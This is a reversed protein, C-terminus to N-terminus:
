RPTRRYCVARMKRSHSARPGRKFTAIGVGLALKQRSHSARPGCKFTAIGVGLALLKWLVAPALFATFPVKTDGGDGSKSSTTSGAALQLRGENARVASSVQFLGTTVLFLLGVTRSEFLLACLTLHPTLLPWLFERGNV